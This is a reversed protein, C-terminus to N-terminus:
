SLMIILMVMHFTVNQWEEKRVNRYVIVDLQNNSLYNIQNNYTHNNDYLNIINM